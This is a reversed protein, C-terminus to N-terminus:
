GLTAGLLRITHLGLEFMLGLIQAIALYQILMWIRVIHVHEKRGSYHKIQLRADWAIVSLFIIYPIAWAYALIVSLETSQDKLQMLSMISIVGGVLAFISYKIAKM